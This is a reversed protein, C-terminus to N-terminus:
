LTRHGAGQDSLISAKRNISDQAREQLRSQMITVAIVSAFSEAYRVDKATFHEFPNVKGDKDKKNIVQICGLVQGTSQDCVPVCLIHRTRYGSKRDVTPDFRRDKYADAILM